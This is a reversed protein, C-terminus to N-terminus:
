GHAECSARIWSSSRASSSRTAPTSDLSQEHRDTSPAAGGGGAAARARPQHSDDPFRAEEVAQGVRSRQNRGRRSPGRLLAHRQPSACWRRAPPLRRDKRLAASARAMNAYRLSRRRLTLRQRLRGRRFAIQRWHQGFERRRGPNACGTGNSGRKCCGNKLTLSGLCNVHQGFRPSRRLIAVDLRHFHANRDPRRGTGTMM